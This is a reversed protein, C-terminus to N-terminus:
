KITEGSKKILRVKKGTKTDISFGVRSAKGSKDLLMVNSIDIGKEIESVGGQIGLQANPKQTKKVINVGKIVVRTSNDKKIIALVEGTKGSDKGRM